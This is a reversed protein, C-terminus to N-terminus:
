LSVPQATYLRDFDVAPPLAPVTTRPIRRRVARKWEDDSWRRDADVLMADIRQELGDRERRSVEDDRAGRSQGSERRRSDVPRSGRRPPPAPGSRRPEIRYKQIMDPTLPSEREKDATTPTCLECLMNDLSVRGATKAVEGADAVENPSNRRETSSGRSTQDDVVREFLKSVSSKRPAPLGDTNNVNREEAAGLHPFPPRNAAPNLPRSNTIPRKAIGAATLDNFSRLSHSRVKALRFRFEARRQADRSRTTTEGSMDPLSVVRRSTTSTLGDGTREVSKQEDETAAVSPFSSRFGSNRGPGTEKSSSKPAQTFNAPLTNSARTPDTDSIFESTAAPKRRDDNSTSDVVASARQRTAMLLGDFDNRDHDPRFEGPLTFGTGTGVPLSSRRRIVFPREVTGTLCIKCGQCQDAHVEEFYATLATVNDKGVEVKSKPVEVDFMWECSKRRVMPPVKSDGTEKTLGRRGTVTDALKHLANYWSTVDSKVSKQDGLDNRQTSATSKVLSQGDDVDLDEQKVPRSTLDLSQSNHQDSSVGPAVVVAINDLNEVQGQIEVVDSSQPPVESATCQRTDDASRENPDVVTRSLHQQQNPDHGSDNPPNSNVATTDSIMKCRDKTDTVDSRVDVDVSKRGSGTDLPGENVTKSVTRQRAVDKGFRDTGFAGPGFVFGFGQRDTNRFTTADAHATQVDPPATRWNNFVEDTNNVPYDDLLSSLSPELDVTEDVDADDDLIDNISVTSAHSIPRSCSPSTRLLDILEDVDTETPLNALPSAAGVLEDVAQDVLAGDYPEMQTRADCQDRRPYGARVAASEARFRQDCTTTSNHTKLPFDASTSSELGDDGLLWAIGGTRGGTDNRHDEVVRSSTQEAHVRAPRQIHLGDGLEPSPKHAAERSAPVPVQLGDKPVSGQVHLVDRPRPM